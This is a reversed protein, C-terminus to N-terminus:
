ASLGLRPGSLPRRSRSAPHDPPWCLSIVRASGSTARFCVAAVENIDHPELYSLHPRNLTFSRRAAADNEVAGIISFGSRELGLDLGGVGSFTSLCLLQGNAIGEDMRDTVTQM